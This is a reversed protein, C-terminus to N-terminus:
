DGNIVMLWLTIWSYIPSDIPDGNIWHAFFLLAGNGMSEFIKM